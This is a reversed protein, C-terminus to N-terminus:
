LLMFACEASTGVVVYWLAFYFGGIYDHRWVHKSFVRFDWM